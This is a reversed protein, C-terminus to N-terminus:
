LGYRVGREVCRILVGFLVNRQTHGRTLDVAPLNM